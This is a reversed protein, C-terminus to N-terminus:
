LNPFWRFLICVQDIHFLCGTVIVGPFEERVARVLGKEFDSMVDGMKFDPFLDKICRFLMKYAATTKRSM